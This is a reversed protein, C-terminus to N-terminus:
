VEYDNYGNAFIRIGLFYVINYIYVFKKGKSVLLSNEILDKFCDYDKSKTIHSHSKLIPQMIDGISTFDFLIM